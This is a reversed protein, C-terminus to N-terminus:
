LRGDRLREIISPRLTSDHAPNDINSGSGNPTTVGPTPTTVGPTGTKNVTGGPGNKQTAPKSQFLGGIATIAPTLTSVLSGVSNHMIQAISDAKDSVVAYFFATESALAPGINCEWVSTVIQPQSTLGKPDVGYRFLPSAAIGIGDVNLFYAQTGSHFGTFDVANETVTTGNVLGTQLNLECRTYVSRGGGHGRWRGYLFQGFTVIDVNQADPPLSENPASPFIMKTFVEIDPGVPIANLELDSITEIANWNYGNLNFTTEDPIWRREPGDIVYVPAGSGKLLQGTLYTPM